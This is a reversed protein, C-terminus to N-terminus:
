KCYYMYRIFGYLLSSLFLFNNLREAQIRTLKLSFTNNVLPRFFEPGGDVSSLSEWKGTRFYHEIKTLICMGDFDNWDMMTLIILIITFPLHNSPLFFVSFLIFIILGVHFYHVIDAFFLSISM